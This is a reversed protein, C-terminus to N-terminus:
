ETTSLCLWLVMAITGCCGEIIASHPLFSPQPQILPPQQTLWVLHAPLARLGSPRLIFLCRFITSNRTPPGTSNVAICSNFYVPPQTAATGIVAAQGTNTGLISSSFSVSLPPQNAETAFASTSTNSTPFHVPPWGPPPVSQGTPRSETSMIQKLQETSISKQHLMEDNENANFKKVIVWIIHMCIDKVSVMGCDCNPNQQNRRAKHAWQRLAQVSKEFVWCWFSTDTHYVKIKPWQLSSKSCKAGVTGNESRPSQWKKVKNQHM